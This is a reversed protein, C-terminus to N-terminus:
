SGSAVTTDLHRLFIDLNHVHRCFLSVSRGMEMPIRNATRQLLLGRSHRAIAISGVKLRNGLSHM